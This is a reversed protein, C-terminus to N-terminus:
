LPRFTVGVEPMVSGRLSSKEPTKRKRCYIVRDHFSKQEGGLEILRDLEPVYTVMDFTKRLIALRRSLNQMSRDRSTHYELCFKSCNPILGGDVIGFESGEVDMKVGDYTGDLDGAFTNNVIIPDDKMLGRKILTGRYHNGEIRSNWLSVRAERFSSVASNVCIFDTANRKLISFCNPEPEYCVASAGRIQCYVAFAGINAGLDLWREGFEVDFGISARRYARNDVVERLVKEDTTGPRYFVPIGGYYKISLRQTSRPM